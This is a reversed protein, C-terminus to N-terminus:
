HHVTKFTHYDIRGKENQVSEMFPYFFFIFNNLEEGGIEPCFKSLIGCINTISKGYAAKFATLLELRSNAEMDYNNMSLLKLLQERKEM